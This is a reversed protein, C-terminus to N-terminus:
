SRTRAISQGSPACLRLRCSRSCRATRAPSRGCAGSLVALLRNYVQVKGPTISAARADRLRGAGLRVAALTGVAREVADAPVLRRQTVSGANALPDSHQM